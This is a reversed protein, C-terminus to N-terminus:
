YGAIDKTHQSFAWFHGERDLACYVRDGYHMDKPPSVIEAGAAEARAAHADVDDVFLYVCGTLVGARKPTSTPRLAHPSQAPSLMFVASGYTLQAHDVAGSKDKGVFREGLGFAEKLFGIAAPLDDYFLCPACQPMGAPPNKVM